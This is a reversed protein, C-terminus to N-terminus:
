NLFSFFFYSAQLIVTKKISLAVDVVSCLLFCIIFCDLYSCLALCWVFLMCATTEATATDMAGCTVNELLHIAMYM